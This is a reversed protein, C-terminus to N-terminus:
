RPQLVEDLEAQIAKSDPHNPLMELVERYLIIANPTSHSINKYGRALALTIEPSEKLRVKARILEKLFQEPSKTLQTVALYQLTFLTSQPDRRIAELATAEAWPLQNDALLSESLEFWVQARSDDMKLSEWYSAVADADHGELKLQRAERLLSDATIPPPPPPPPPPEEPVEQEIKALLQARREAEEREKMQRAIREAERLKRAQEEQEQRWKALQTRSSSLPSVDLEGPFRKDIETIIKEVLPYDAQEMALDLLGIYPEPQSGDDLELAVQYWSEAETTNAQDTFLKGLRFANSGSPKLRDTELYAKIAEDPQELSEHLEGLASWVTANTPDLQLYERYLEGAEEPENGAQFSKAAYLLYHSRKPNTRVIQVFRHAALIHDGASARAFALAELVALDDPYNDSLDELLEIARHSDGEDLFHHSLDITEAIKAERDQCASALFLVSSLFLTFLVRKKRRLM